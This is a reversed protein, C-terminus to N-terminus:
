IKGPFSGEARHLALESVAVDFHSQALMEQAAVLGDQAQLLDIQTATGAEYQTRILSLTEQALAVQRSATEQASRKTVLQGRSNALDDRISDSLVQARASAERAQADALRRQADRTGGDFLVWDLQAGVAWSYRDGTFGVYNGIRAQAFASLSPAWKWLYADAQLNASKSTLELARFEPRLQLTEALGGPTLPQPAAVPVTGSPPAPPRVKFDGSGTARDSPGAGGAGESVGMLTTLARYAQRRAEAAERESQEARLLALEARDVDVKTVTGASFRTQANTLTAQAVEISSRRALLVEDTVACGYFAQAVAFLISTESAELTAESAAVNSKVANLAPYAAPALLPLTANISADLQEQRLITVPPINSTTMLGAARFLGGFDLDAQKYNHTYKGQTTVVPFLVSWAQDLNTRAQALREREALLSRSSKKARALAEDLGLEKVNSTSTSTSAPDALASSGATAPATGARASDGVLPAILLTGGLAFAVSRQVVVPLSTKLLSASM